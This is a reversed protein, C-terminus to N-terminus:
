FRRAFLVLMAFYKLTKRVARTAAFVVAKNRAFETYMETAYV